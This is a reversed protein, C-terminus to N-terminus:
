VPEASARRIAPSSRRGGPAVRRRRAPRRARSRDARRARSRRRWPGRGRSCSSRAGPAPAPLSRRVRTSWGASRTRSRRGARPPSAPRPRRGSGRPHRVRDGRRGERGGVGVPEFSRQGGRDGADALAVELRRRAREGAGPARREIDDARARPETLESLAATSCGSRKPRTADALHPDCREVVNVAISRCQFGHEGLESAFAARVLDDDATIDSQPGICDSHM